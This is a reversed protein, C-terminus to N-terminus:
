ELEDEAHSHNNQFAFTVTNRRQRCNKWIEDSPAETCLFLLGLSGPKVADTHDTGEKQGAKKGM